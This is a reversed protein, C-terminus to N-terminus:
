SICVLIEIFIPSSIYSTIYSSLVNGDNLEDLRKKRLKKASLAIIFRVQHRDHISKREYLIVNFLSGKRINMLTEQHVIISRIYHFLNRSCVTVTEKLEPPSRHAIGPFNQRLFYTSTKISHNSLSHPFEEGFDFEKPYSYIRHFVSTSDIRINPRSSKPM